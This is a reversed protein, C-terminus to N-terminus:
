AAQFKFLRALRNVQNCALLADLRNDWSSQIADTAVSVVNYVSRKPDYTVRYLM